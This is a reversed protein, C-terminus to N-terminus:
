PRHARDSGKSGALHRTLRYASVAPMQIENASRALGFDLSETSEAGSYAINVVAPSITEIMPALTPVERAVNAQALALGSSCATALTVCCRIAALFRPSMTPGYSMRVCRTPISAHAALALRNLM